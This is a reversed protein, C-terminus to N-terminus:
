IENQVKYGVLAGNSQNMGLYKVAKRVAYEQKVNKYGLSYALDLDIKNSEELYEVELEGVTNSILHADSELSKREVINWVMSLLILFYCFALAGLSLFMYHLIRAKLNNNDIVDVNSSYRKIKLTAAKM